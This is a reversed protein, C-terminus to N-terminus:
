AILKKRRGLKGLGLASLGMGFLGLSVPEPIIPVPGPVLATSSPGGSTLFGGFVPTPGDPSTFYLRESSTAGGCPASLGPPCLSPTFFLWTGSGGAPTISLTPIAGGLPPLSLPFPGVSTIPSGFPNGVSFTFIINGLLPTSTNTVTYFYDYTADANPLYSTPDGPAYVEWGVTASFGGVGVFPTSGFILVAEATRAGIVAALLSALALGWVRKKM